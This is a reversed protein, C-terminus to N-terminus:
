PSALAWRPGRSGTVRVWFPDQARRTLCARGLVPPLDTVLNALNNRTAATSMIGAAGTASALVVLAIPATFSQAYAFGRPFCVSILATEANSFFILRLSSM